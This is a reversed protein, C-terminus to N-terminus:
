PPPWFARSYALDARTRTSLGNLEGAYGQLERPTEHGLQDEDGPADMAIASSSKARFMGHKGLIM